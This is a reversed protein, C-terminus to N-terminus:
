IMMRSQQIKELVPLVKRACIEKANDRGYVNSEEGLRGTLAPERKVDNTQFVAAVDYFPSNPSVPQPKISPHQFGLSLVLRHLCQRPTEDENVDIAAVVQTIGTNASDVEGRRPRKAPTQLYNNIRLWEVALKACAIKADKKIPFLGVAFPQIPGGDLQIRYSYSYPPPSEEVYPQYDPAFRKTQLANINLLSIWDETKDVPSPSRQNSKRKMGASQKSTFAPLRELAVKAVADRAQDKSPFLGSAEFPVGAVIVKATFNQPYVEECEYTPRIQQKDCFHQLKVINDCSAKNKNSQLRVLKPQYPHQRDFDDIDQLDTLGAFASLALASENILGSQGSPPPSFPDVDIRNRITLNNHEQSSFPSSVAAAAAM